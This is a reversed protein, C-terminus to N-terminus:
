EKKGCHVAPIHIMRRFLVPPMQSQYLGRHAKQLAEPGLPCSQPWVLMAYCVHFIDTQYGLLRFGARRYFSLRRRRRRDEEPATGPEPAEAEVLLACAPGYQVKLLELARTGLGRGRLGPCVALYDLLACNGEATRWLFAYALLEEGEFMGWTDYRGTRRLRRISTLPRRESPPFDAKVYKRYVLGLQGDTLPRLEPM